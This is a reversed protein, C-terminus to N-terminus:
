HREHYLLRSRTSDVHICTDCAWGFAEVVEVTSPKAILGFTESVMITFAKTILAM